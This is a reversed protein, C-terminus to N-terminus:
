GPRRALAVYVGLGIMTTGSALQLARARASRGADSALLRDVTCVAIVDAFTNLLVCVSGLVVFQWGPAFAPSVFQPIFALFFLATKVNMMEVIAGDRLARRAGAAALRPVASRRHARLMRIGLWLLYAAGILKVATFATASQALLWSLGAAAAAVHVLGGLATGLCSALGEARGGAVTRAVVYTMGPGPTFALVIAAFLFALWQALPAAAEAITDM